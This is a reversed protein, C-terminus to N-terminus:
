AGEVADKLIAIAERKAKPWLKREDDEIMVDELHEFKSGKSVFSRYGVVVKRGSKKITGDHIMSIVGVRKHSKSRTSKYEVIWEGYITDEQTTKGTPKTVYTIKFGDDKQDSKVSSSKAKVKAKQNTAKSGVNVKSKSKATM